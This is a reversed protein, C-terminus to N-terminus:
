PLVAIAFVISNWCADVSCQGGSVFDWKTNSCGVHHWQQNLWNTLGYLWNM